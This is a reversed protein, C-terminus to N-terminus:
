LSINELYQKKENQKFEEYINLLLHYALETKLMHPFEKVEEDSKSIVFVKNYDSGFASSFTSDSYINSVTSLREKADVIDEPAEKEEEGVLELGVYNAIIMDLNKNYLKDKAYQLLNETEAAFGVTFPRKAIDLNSVEALIDITRILELKLSQTNKKIKGKNPRVTKFDAVAAASIFIDCASIDDDLIESYIKNGNQNDEGKHKIESKYGASGEKTVEKGDKGIRKMVESYLEDSTKMKVYSIGSPIPIDAIGSILLVNAGMEKAALALAYGMKGSSRNSIYRVRDINERTRGATIIINLDKLKNKLTTRLENKINNKTTNISSSFLNLKNLQPIVKNVLKGKVGQLGFAKFSDTSNQGDLKNSLKNGFQNRKNNHQNNSQRNDQNNNQANSQINEQNSVRSSTKHSIQNNNKFFEQLFDYITEIEAIHGIGFDGCAQPGEIPEIFRVGRNKLIGINYQTADNKWMQKNMAPAIVIDAKTALCINTLLSNALGCALSAIINATAPAVLILNAFRALEIHHMAREYGDDDRYIKGGILAEFSLPTVFYEATRSLAIKLNVESKRLCNAFEYMKYAAISGTIGLLINRGKLYNHKM